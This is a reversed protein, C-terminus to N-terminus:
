ETDGGWPVCNTQCARAAYCDNSYVNGDACIVPRWVDLCNGKFCPGGPGAATVVTAASLVVAGVVGVVSCKVVLEFRNRKM